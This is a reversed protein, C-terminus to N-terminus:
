KSCGDFWQQIYQVSGIHERRKCGGRGVGYARGRESCSDEIAAMGARATISLTKLRVLWCLASFPAM